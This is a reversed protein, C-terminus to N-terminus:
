ILDMVKVMRKARTVAAYMWRDFPEIPESIVAVKEAQDGQAKHCTRAYAYTVPYPRMRGHLGTSQDTLAVVRGNVAWGKETKRLHQVIETMGNYCDKTNTLYMIEDGRALEGSLGRHARIRSNLMHRTNNLGCIVMDASLVYSWDMDDVDWDGYERINTALELVRGGHRVVETLVDDPEFAMEGDVPPLQFPDGVFYTPLGYSRIDDMLRDTLMSAEDCIVFRGDLRSRRHWADNREDYDYIAKHITTANIGKERLVNAAANTPALYVGGELTRAVEAIQTTKGTGAYGGLNFSVGSRVKDLLLM